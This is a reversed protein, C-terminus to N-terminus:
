CCCMACSVVGKEKLRVGSAELIEYLTPIRSWEDRRRLRRAEHRGKQGIELPQLPGRSGGQVYQTWIWEGPLRMWGWPSYWRYMSSEWNLGGEWVELEYSGSSVCCLGFRMGSKEEEFRIRAMLENLWCCSQGELLEPWFKQTMRSEEKGNGVGLRDM